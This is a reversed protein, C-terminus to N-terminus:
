PLGVMLAVRQGTRAEAKLQPDSGAEPLLRRCLSLLRPIAVLGDPLFRSDARRPPKLKALQHFADTPKWTFLYGVWALLVERFADSGPITLWGRPPPTVRRDPGYGHPRRRRASFCHVLYHGQCGAGSSAAASRTDPTGAAHPTVELSRRRRNIVRTSAGHKDRDDAGASAPRTRQGQDLQVDPIGSRFPTDDLILTM